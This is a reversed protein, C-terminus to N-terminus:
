VLSFEWVAEARVGGGRDWLLQKGTVVVIKCVCFRWAKFVMIADRVRLQRENSSWGLERLSPTTHGYKRVGTRIRAAFSIQIM